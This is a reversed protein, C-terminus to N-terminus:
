SMVQEETRGTENVTMLMFAILLALPSFWIAKVPFHNIVTKGLIAGLAFILIISYYLGSKKLLKKDERKHLYNCFTDTATRLNGICMTTALNNGEIVRFAQVQIGCALSVMSNALLNLNQSIYGVGILIMIEILVAMQRWHIKPTNKFHLRLMQAIFVGVAFCMVPSVYNLAERWKGESLHIGLLIINGTQANAFVKGRSLYTYADMFGGSLAMIGGVLFSESMQKKERTESQYKIIM